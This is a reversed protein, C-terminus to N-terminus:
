WNFPTVWTGCTWLSWSCTLSQVPIEPHWKLTCWIWMLYFIFSPFALRQIRESKRDPIFSSSQKCLPLDLLFVCLVCNQWFENLWSISGSLFLKECSRMKNTCCNFTNWAVLALRLTDNTQTALPHRSFIIGVTAYKTFYYGVVCEAIVFFTSCLLVPKNICSSLCSSFSFLYSSIFFCAIFGLVVSRM